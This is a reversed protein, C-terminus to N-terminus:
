EQEKQEMKYLHSFAKAYPSVKLLFSQLQKFLDLDINQNAPNQRRENFAQEPDIIYLSAYEHPTNDPPVMNGIRHYIQGHIRFVFPKRGAPMEIHVGMSIFAFSSNLTHINELYNKRTAKSLIIRELERVPRLLHLLVTGKNCCFSSMMEQAFYLAPNDYQRDPNRCFQCLQDLCEGHISNEHLIYRM